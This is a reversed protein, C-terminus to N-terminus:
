LYIPIDDLEDGHRLDKQGSFGMFFGMWMTNGMSKGTWKGRFDWPLIMTLAAGACRGGAGPVRPERGLSAGGPASTEAPPFWPSKWPFDIPFRHSIGHYWPIELPFRHSIRHIYSPIHIPYEHFYWGCPTYHPHMPNLVWWLFPLQIDAWFVEDWGMRGCRQCRNTLLFNGCCIMM